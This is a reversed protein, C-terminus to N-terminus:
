RSCCMAQSSIDVCESGPHDEWLRMCQVFTQEYLNKEGLRRQDGAIRYRVAADVRAGFHDLAAHSFFNEVLLFGDAQFRDVEAQSVRAVGNATITDVSTM